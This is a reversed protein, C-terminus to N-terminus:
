VSQQKAPTTEDLLARIKKGTDERNHRNFPAYYRLGRRKTKENLAEFM